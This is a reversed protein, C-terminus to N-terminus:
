GCRSYSWRRRRSAAVSPIANAADQHHHTFHSMKNKIKQRSSVGSEQNEFRLNAFDHNQLILRLVASAHLERNGM